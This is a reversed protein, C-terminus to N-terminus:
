EGLRGRRSVLWLVAAVVLAVIILMGIISIVWGGGGMGNTYMM